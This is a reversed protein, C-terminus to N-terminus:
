CAMMGITSYLEYIKIAMKASPTIFVHTRTPYKRCVDTILYNREVLLDRMMFWSNSRKNNAAECNHDQHCIDENLTQYEKLMSYDTDTLKRM